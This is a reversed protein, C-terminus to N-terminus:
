WPSTNLIHTFIFLAQRHFPFAVDLSTSSIWAWLCIQMYIAQITTSNPIPQQCVQCVLARIKELGNLRFALNTVAYNEYTRTIESKTTYRSNRSTRHVVKSLVSRCVSGLESLNEEHLMFPLMKKLGERCQIHLVGVNASKSLNTKSRALRPLSHYIQELLPRLNM